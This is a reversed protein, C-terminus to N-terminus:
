PLSNKARPNQSTGVSTLRDWSELIERNEGSSAITCTKMFSPNHLFYPCLRPSIERPTM